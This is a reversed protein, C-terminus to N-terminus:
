CYPCYPGAPMYGPTYGPGYYTNYTPRGYGGNTFAPALLGGTIGGLLFPGLFPFFRDDDHNELGQYNPIAQPYMNNQGKLNSNQINNSSNTYVSSYPVMNKNSYNYNSYM